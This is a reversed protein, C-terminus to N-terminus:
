RYKRRIIADIEPDSLVTQLLVQNSSTFAATSNSNYSYSYNEAAAEYKDDWAIEANVATTYEKVAANFRKAKDVRKDFSEDSEEFVCVLQIGYYSAHVKVDGIAVGHTAAFAEVATTLVSLPKPSKGLSKTREIKDKSKPVRETGYELDDTRFGGYSKKVVPRPPIKKDAAKKATM